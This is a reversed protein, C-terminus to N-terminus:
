ISTSHVSKLDFSISFVEGTRLRMEENKGFSQIRSLREFGRAGIAEGDGCFRLLYPVKIEPERVTKPLCLRERWVQSTRNDWEDPNTIGSRYQQCPLCLGQFVPPLVQLRQREKLVKLLFRLDQLLLHLKHLLDLSSDHKLYEQFSFLGM